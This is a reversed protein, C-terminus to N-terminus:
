GIRSIWHILGRFVRSVERIRKDPLSIFLTNEM